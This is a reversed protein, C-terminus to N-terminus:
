ADQEVKREGDACFWDGSQVKNHNLECVNFKVNDGDVYCHSCDKCRVIDQEKLLGNEDVDCNACHPCIVCKKKLCENMAEQEKLLVIIEEIAQAYPWLDEHRLQGIDQKLNELWKIADENRM